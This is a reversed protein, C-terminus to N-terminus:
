KETPPYLAYGSVSIPAQYLTKGATVFLTKRDPGGFALNTILNEPIPIRGLMKGKPSIVYIGPPVDLTEGPDTRLDYLALRVSDSAYKGPWGNYGIASAKKYTQSICPFTLIWQGKRICKLSNRDYYIAIEDRPNANKEQKLLSLINVGDIKKVPM